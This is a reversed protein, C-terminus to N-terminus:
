AVRVGNSYFGRRPPNQRGFHARQNKDMKYGVYQSEKKTLNEAIARAYGYIDSIKTKTTLIKILVQDIISQPYYKICDCLSQTKVCRDIGVRDKYVLTTPVELTKEEFIEKDSDSLADESENLRDTKTDTKTDPIPTPMQGTGNPCDETEIQANAWMSFKKQNIFAYWTTKDFKSKNFNDTMLVPEFDLEDSKSRRSKGTTLRILIERVKDASWYPFHAAIEEFTQYTWTRGEHQNRNLRHNVMTWHQFHHIMISEEIGYTEAYQIDFSHHLSKSM